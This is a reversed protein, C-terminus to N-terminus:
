KKRLRFLLNYLRSFWGNLCKNEVQNIRPLFANRSIIYRLSIQNIRYYLFYWKSFNDYHAFCFLYIASSQSINLLIMKTSFENLFSKMELSIRKTNIIIGDDYYKCNYHNIRRIIKEWTITKIKYFISGDVVTTIFPIRKHYLLDLMLNM